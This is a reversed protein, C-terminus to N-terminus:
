IANPLNAFLVGFYILIVFLLENENMIKLISCILIILIFSYIIMDCFLFIKNFIWTDVSLFHMPIINNYM